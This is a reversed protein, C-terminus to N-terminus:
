PELGGLVDELVEDPYDATCVARGIRELLVLRIRGSQVKKDMRMLDLMRQRGLRPPDVPLGARALLRRVRDVDGPALWGLRCSLTAALVMGAAVAEGHLWTGYGAGTEIAHGFTHGLNLLAREGREFEDRSVIGAKCECSRRIAQALTEADRALLRELNAELWALFDEDAILGYKIVEALGAALERDPLTGLTDTDAIRILPNLGNGASFKFADGHAMITTLHRGASLHELAHPRDLTNESQFCYYRTWSPDIQADM